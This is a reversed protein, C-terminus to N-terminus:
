RDEIADDRPAVRSAGLGCATTGGSALARVAPGVVTRLVRRTLADREAPGLIGWADTTAARPLEALAALVAERAEPRAGLGWALTKWALTAHGTEARAIDELVRRLDPDETRLAAVRAVLLRRRRRSRGPSLDARTERHLTAAVHLVHHTVYPDGM